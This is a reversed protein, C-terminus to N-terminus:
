GVARHRLTSSSAVAGKKRHRFNRASIKNRMQRKEAPTMKSYTEPDPKDMWDPVPALHAGANTHHLEATAFQSVSTKPQKAQRKSQRRATARSRSGGFDSDAEMESGDDGAGTATSVSRVQRGRKSGAASTSASPEPAREVSPTEIIIEPKQDEPAVSAAATLMSPELTWASDTPQSTLDFDFSIPSMSGAPRASSDDSAPSLAGIPSGPFTAPEFVSPSFSDSALTPPFAEESEPAFPLEPETSPKTFDASSSSSRACVGDTGSARDREHRTDLKSIVYAFLDSYDVGNASDDAGDEIAIPANGIAMSTSTNNAFLDTNLWEDFPSETKSEGGM